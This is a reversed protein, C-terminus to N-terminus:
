CLYYLVVYKLTVLRKTITLLVQKIREETEEEAVNVEDVFHFCNSDRHSVFRLHVEKTAERKKKKCLHEITIM